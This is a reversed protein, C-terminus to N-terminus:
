ALLDGAQELLARGADRGSEVMRDLQHFELLGVGMSSPTVVIAGSERAVAVAGGSGIFLSRMLTEGLAPIRVPRSAVPGDVPRPRADGGMGINVAVIPGEDRDNLLRVPLNDLVGGDVLLRDADRRPPFLGPISISSMVASTLDGQRHVYSTRSQLDTSVCRFRRPLEEIHVDGLQRRLAKETRRGRVLSTVPLTYDNYPNQRVFEEYCMEVATRADHGSAYVAAVISGQSAGAVRDVAVGADELVELLGLHAFARAGGGAMVIGVSRGAIRAALPRVGVALSDTAQTIHWPDLAAHWARVREGGAAPGVLVLDSGTRALAAVTGPGADSAAVVVLQDAQRVCVDWWPATPDDAVLLVLDAAREARELGDPGVEGPQAVTLTRGVQDVLQAAVAAAPAGAHLAVVAVLGPRPATASPPPATDQLQTALVGTLARLAEADSGVVDEFTEHSVRLVHSDRRARVSASRRGGTLLALEGLVAGAGVQRVTEGQVEVDLLGATVVYMDAAEDGAAFLLEGGHVLVPESRAELRGRVDM